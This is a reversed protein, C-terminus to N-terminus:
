ERGAPEGLPDNRVLVGLVDPDVLILGGDLLERPQM